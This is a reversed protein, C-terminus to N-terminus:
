SERDGTEADSNEIQKESKSRRQEIVSALRLTGTVNLDVTEKVKGYARNALVDFAYPKGAIVEAALGQYVEAENLEFIQRSIKAAVDTGPQGGPNGSVGKPWPKPRLQKRSNPHNGSGIGKRRSGQTSFIEKNEEIQQATRM